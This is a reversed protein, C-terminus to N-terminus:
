RLKTLEDKAQKIFLRNSRYSQKSMNEAENVIEQLVESAAKPNERRILFLALQLRQEYYNYPADFLRLRAEAADFNEKKELTLAYLLNAKSKPFAPHEKIKEALRLSTDFDAIRYHAEQLRSQVYYDNEFMDKLSSRYTEIAQEFFDKEMYADALAVKNEFTESFKLRKELDRIKKTPNLTNVLDNQAKEVDRQQLVNMFLYLICGVLPLFIIAFVWYYNNRNTYCHYICYGQLAIILYYYM